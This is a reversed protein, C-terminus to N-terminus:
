EEADQTTQPGECAADEFSGIDLFQEVNWLSGVERGASEAILDDVRLRSLGHQLFSESVVM